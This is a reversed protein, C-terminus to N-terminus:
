RDGLWGYSINYFGLETSWVIKLILLFRSRVVGDAAKIAWRSSIFTAFVKYLSTLVRYLKLICRLLSIRTWDDVVM